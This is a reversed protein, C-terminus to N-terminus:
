RAPSLASTARAASPLGDFLSYIMQLTSHRAIAGRIGSTSPAAPTEHSAHRGRHGTAPATPPPAPPLAIRTGIPRPVMIQAFWSVANGFIPIRTAMNLGHKLMDQIVSLMEGDVYYSKVRAGAPVAAHRAVTRTNLGATDFTVATSQRVVSTQASALGGGLSHGTFVLQRPPYHLALSKGWNIAEEYQKSRLGLAQRLNHMWDVLARGTIGMETGRDAALYRECLKDEYLAGFFGSQKPGNDDHVSIRRVRTPLIEPVSHDFYVDHNVLAATIDNRQEIMSAPLRSKGKAEILTDLEDIRQAVTVLKATRCASDHAADDGILPQMQAFVNDYAVSGLCGCARSGSALSERTAERWAQILARMRETLPDNQASCSQTRRRTETNSLTGIRELSRRRQADFTRRERAIDAWEAPTECSTM